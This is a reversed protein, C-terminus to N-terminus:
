LQHTAEFEVLLAVLSSVTVKIGYGAQSGHLGCKNNSWEQFAVSNLIGSFKTTKDEGTIDYVELENKLLSFSRTFWSQKDVWKFFLHPLPTNPALDHCEACMLFLNSPEDSGGLSKPIIHCRQLPRVKDWRRLVEEWPM